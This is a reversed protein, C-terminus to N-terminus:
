ISRKGLLEEANVILKDAIAEANVVFKGDRIAQSIREVKAGDFSGAEPGAKFMLQASASLAVTASAEAGPKSVPGPMNSAIPGKRDAPQAAPQTAPKAAPQLASQVSPKIDIPGIKM